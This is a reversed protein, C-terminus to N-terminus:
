KTNKLQWYGFKPNMIEYKPDKNMEELYREITKKSKEESLV